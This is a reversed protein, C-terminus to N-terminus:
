RWRKIEKTRSLSEIQSNAGKEPMFAKFGLDEIAEVLDRIGVKSKKIEFFGTANTNNHSAHAISFSM